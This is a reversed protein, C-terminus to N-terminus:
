IRIKYNILILFSDKCNSKSIKSVTQQLEVVPSKEQTSYRWGEKDVVDGPHAEKHSANLECIGETGGYNISVCQDETLCAALCRTWSKQTNNKIVHNTLVQNHTTQRLLASRAVPCAGPSALIAQTTFVFCSLVLIVSVYIKLNLTMSVDLHRHRIVFSEIESVFMEATTDNLTGYHKRKTVM